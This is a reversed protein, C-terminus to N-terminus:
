ALFAARDAGALLEIGPGLNEIIQCGRIAPQGGSCWIGTNGGRITFGALVCRQTCNQLRVAPDAGNGELVTVAM